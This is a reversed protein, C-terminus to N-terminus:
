LPQAREQAREAAVERLVDGLRDFERAKDLFYRAGLTFAEQRYIPLAYNTLVVSIPPHPMKLASRMVGFGTGQRLHLDLILVDVTGSGAIRSAERENDVVNVLESDGLERILESLRQALVPSDEVLLIRLATPLPPEIM